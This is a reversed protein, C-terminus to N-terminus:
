FRFPGRTPFGGVPMESNLYERFQDPHEDYYVIQPPGGNKPWPDYWYIRGNPDRGVTTAHHSPGNGNWNVGVIFAQGPQLGNIANLFPLRDQTTYATGTTDPNGLGILTPYQASTMGGGVNGYYDALLQQLYGLDGHNFIGEDLHDRLRALIQLAEEDTLRGGAAGRPTTQNAINLALDSILRRVAEPGSMVAAAVYSARACRVADTPTDEVPNAPNNSQDIQTMDTLIAGPNWSNAHALTAGGFAPQENPARAAAGGHGPVTIPLGNAAANAEAAPLQPLQGIAVPAPGPGGIPGITDVNLPQRSM